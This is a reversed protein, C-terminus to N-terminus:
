SFYHSISCNYYNQNKKVQTHSINFPGYSIGSRSSSAKDQEYYMINMLMTSYLFVFCCTLRDKRSFSNNAPKAFVSFWLHNDSLKEKTQKEMLYRLETKQKNCAAFLTREIKHDSKNIGLWNNCIFYTKERTQLDHVIVLKLFWAANALKGSNDHGIRLISLDGLPSFFYFFFATFYSSLM